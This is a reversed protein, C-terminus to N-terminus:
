GAVSSGRQLRPSLASHSSSRDFRHDLSGSKRVPKRLRLPTQSQTASGMQALPCPAADFLGSVHECDVRGDSNEKFSKFGLPRGCM